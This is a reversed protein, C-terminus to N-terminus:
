KDIEIKNGNSSVEIDGDEDTRYINKMIKKLRKYTSPHPHHFKNGAGVQIIGYSPKVKDLFKQSSSTKSGHHGVKLVDSNLSNGFKKVLEEECDEELDGTFLFVNNKYKMQIVISANNINDYYKGKAPHLIKVSIDKDWKFEDDRKPTEYGIDNKKIQKLIEKYTRTTSPHGSDFVKIVKIRKFLNLTGEIHDKHPHTLVLTDIKKIKNKELIDAIKDGDKPTKGTDIVFCKKSPTIIIQADGQGVDVYIIKIKKGTKEGSVSSTKKTTGSSKGFIDQADKIEFDDSVESQTKIPEQETEEQSIDDSDDSDTKQVTEATAASTGQNDQQIFQQDPIKPSSSSSETLKQFQPKYYSTYYKFGAFGIILIFVAILGSLIINKSKSPEAIEPSSSEKGFLEFATLSITSIDQEDVTYFFIQFDFSGTMVPYVDSSKFQPLKEKLLQIKKESGKYLVRTKGIKIQPDIIWRKNEM